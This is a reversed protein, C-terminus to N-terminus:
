AARYYWDKMCFTMRHGEKEEMCYAMGDFYDLIDLYATM